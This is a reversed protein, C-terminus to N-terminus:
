QQSAYEQIYDTLNSPPAFHWVERVDPIDVGMGFAKTACLARMGTNSGERYWDFLHAKTSKDLSAHYTKIHNPQDLEKVLAEAHRIFPTFTLCKTPISYDNHIREFAKKFTKIRADEKNGSHGVAEKERLIDFVLNEKIPSGFIMDKSEDINMFLIQQTTDITSEKGKLVATATTAYVIFMHAKRLRKVTNKLNWYEVRFTKGWACVTHAEDIVLLNLKRAQLIDDLLFKNNFIEPTMFIIDVEASKIQDLISKRESYSLDGTLKCSKTYLKNLKKFQDNILSKLPQIIITLGNYQKSIYIAPLTFLLSKGSGTPATVFMDGCITDTDGQQNLIDAKEFLRDIVYGQSIKETEKTSVNYPDKYCTFQRFEDFGHFEKLLSYALKGRLSKSDYEFTPAIPEDTIALLGWDILYSYDKIEIPYLIKSTLKYTAYGELCIKVGLDNPNLPPIREQLTDCKPKNFRTYYDFSDKLNVETYIHHLAYSKAQSFLETFFHINKEEDTGSSDLEIVLNTNLCLLQNKKLFPNAVVIFDKETKDIRDQVFLYEELLLWHSEEQDLISALDNKYRNTSCESAEILDLRKISRPNEMEIFDLSEKPFSMIILKKNKSKAYNLAIVLENKLYEAIKSNFPKNTPMIDEM